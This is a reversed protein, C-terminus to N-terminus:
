AGIWLTKTLPQLHTFPVHDFHCYDVGEIKRTFIETPKEWGGVSQIPQEGLVFLITMLVRHVFYGNQFKELYDM